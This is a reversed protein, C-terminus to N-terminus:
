RTLGIRRIKATMPSERVTKNGVVRVKEESVGKTAAPEVIGTKTMSAFLEEVNEYVPDVTFEATVSDALLMEPVAFLRVYSAPEIVLEKINPSLLYKFKEL